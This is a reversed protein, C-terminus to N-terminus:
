KDMKALKKIFRIKKLPMLGLLSQIQQADRFRKEQGFDKMYGVGGLTQIGDSTLSYAMSMVKIACALAKQEWGKENNDIANSANSVCMEAIQIDIGMDALMMQIKSWEIVQRGGQKRDKCYLLSQNFAGKMIGLSISSSVVSMKDSMKTFYVHGNEEKGILSAKCNKLEIDIAPCAHLGLSLIPESKQISNDSLDVIFYSYNNTGKIIGPILAYHAINGLVLYNIKGNLIYQNNEKSAISFNEFEYPNNYSQFAILFDFVTKSNKCINEILEIENSLSLITQSITNTLIIGSLSADIQSINDLLACLAFLNQGIGGSEQPLVIHFFDLDYAKQIVQRNLDVFPYRDSEEYNILEKRAFEKASNKILIIEKIMEAKM